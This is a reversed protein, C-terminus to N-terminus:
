GHWGSGIFVRAEVGALMSEERELRLYSTHTYDRDSALQTTPGITRAAFHVHCL